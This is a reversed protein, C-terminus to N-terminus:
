ALPGAFRTKPLWAREMERKLLRYQNEGYVYKENAAYQIGYYMLARYIILRHFKEPLIPIDNDAALDPPYCLYEGIITYAADPIPFVQLSNANDRTVYSPIGQQTRLTGIQLTDRFVEWEVCTLLTEQQGYQIRLSPLIWEDFDSVGINSSQYTQVGPLTNFQFPKILFLWNRHATLIERYAQNVWDVCQLMQGTQNQTSVPGSGSMSCEARLKQCLALFNM